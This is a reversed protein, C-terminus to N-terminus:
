EVEVVQAEACRQLRRRRHHWVGGGAALSLGFLAYTAPEPVAAVVVLYNDFFSDNTPPDPAGSLYSAELGFEVLRNTPGNANRFPINILPSIPVGNRFVTFRQTQFNLDVRLDQWNNFINPLIPTSISAGGTTIATLREANDIFVATIMQQTGGATFGEFYVGAFPMQSTNGQTGTLMQRYTTRVISNGPTFPPATSNAGGTWDHYWFTQGSFTPDDFMNPGIIRVARSGAFTTASQVVGAPTGLVLQSFDTTQWPNSPYLALADLAFGEFGGSDYLTTQAHSSTALAGSVLLALMTVGVPRRQMM